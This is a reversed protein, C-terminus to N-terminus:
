IIPPKKDLITIFVIVLTTFFVELNSITISSRISLNLSEQGGLGSSKRKTFCFFWICDANVLKVSVIFVNYVVPSTVFSKIPATLVATLTILDIGTGVAIIGGDPPTPIGTFTNVINDSEKSWNPLNNSPALPLTLTIGTAALTICVDIWFIKVLSPWNSKTILLHISSNAM